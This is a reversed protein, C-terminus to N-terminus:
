GIRDFVLLFEFRVLYVFLSVFYGLSAFIALDGLLVGLAAGVFVSCGVLGSVVLSAQNGVLGASVWFVPIATGGAGVLAKLALSHKAASMLGM